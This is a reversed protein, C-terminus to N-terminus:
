KEKKENKSRNSMLQDLNQAPKSEQGNGRLPVNPRPLKGAKQMVYKIMGQIEVIQTQLVSLASQMEQYQAAKISFEEQLRAIEADYESMPRKEETQVKDKKVLEKQKVMDDGM